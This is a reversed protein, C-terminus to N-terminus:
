TKGSSALREATRTLFFKWGRPAILASCATLIALHILSERRHHCLRSLLDMGRATSDTGFPPGFLNLAADVQMREDQGFGPDSAYIVREGGGSSERVAAHYDLGSSGRFYKRALDPFVEGQLVSRNLEVVLWAMEWMGPQHPSGPRRMAYILAPISQDVALFGFGMPRGGHHQMHAEHTVRDHGEPPRHHQAHAASSRAPGGFHPAMMATVQKLHQQLVYFEPPWPLRELGGRAPDFRLPQEHVPDEWVYIHRVLNPHAATQQWHVFQEELQSPVISPSADFAANIEFCVSALERSADQRFGLLSTEINSQMQAKAATSM